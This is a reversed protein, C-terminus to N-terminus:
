SKDKENYKKKPKIKRERKVEDIQHANYKKGM